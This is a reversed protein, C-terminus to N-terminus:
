IYYIAHVEKLADNQLSLMCDLRYIKNLPHPQWESTNEIARLYVVVYLVHIVPGLTFYAWVHSLPWLKATSPLDCLLKAFSAHPNWRLNWLIQFNEILIAGVINLTSLFCTQRVWTHYKMTNSLRSPLCATDRYVTTIIQLRLAM